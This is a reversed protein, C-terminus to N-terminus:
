HSIAFALKLRHGGAFKALLHLFRPMILSFTFPALFLTFLALSFSLGHGSIQDVLCCPLACQCCASWSDIAVRLARMPASLGGGVPPSTTPKTLIRNLSYHKVAMGLSAHM